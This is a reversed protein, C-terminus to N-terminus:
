NPRGERVEPRVGRPVEAMVIVRLERSFNLAIEFDCWLARTGLVTALVIQKSPIYRTSAM